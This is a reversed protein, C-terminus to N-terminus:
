CTVCECDGCVQSCIGNTCCLARIMGPGCGQAGCEQGDTERTMCYGGACFQKSCPSANGGCDTNTSCPVVCQGSGNCVSGGNENCATGQDRPQVSPTGAVCSSSFCQGASPFDNDDNVEGCVGNECTAAKCDGDAQPCDEPTSCEACTGGICARGPDCVTDCDGCHTADSQFDVCKKGCKAYGSDCKCKGRKCSAHKPCCKDGCRRSKPCKKSDTSALASAGPVSAVTLGIAAGALRRLAARRSIQGSALERALADLQKDRAV